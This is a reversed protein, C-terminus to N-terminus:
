SYIEELNINENDMYEHLKDRVEQLHDARIENNGYKIEGRLWQGILHLVSCLSDSSLCRKHAMKEDHDNLDFELIAKM